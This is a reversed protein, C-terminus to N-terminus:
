AISRAVGTEREDMLSTCGFLIERDCLFDCREQPSAGLEPQSTTHTMRVNENVNYMHTFFIPRPVARRADGRRMATRSPIFIKVRGQLNESPQAFKWEPTCIQM